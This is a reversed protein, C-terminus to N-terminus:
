KLIKINRIILETDIEPHRDSWANNIILYFPEKVSFEPDNSRMRTKLKGDLYFDYGKEKVEMSYEHFKGDPKHIKRVISHAKYGPTKVFGYHVCNDIKGGNNEAIDVEPIIFDRNYESVFYDPHLLWIAAWSDPFNANFIWTGGIQSFLTTDKNWTTLCGSVWKGDQKQSKIVLGWLPDVSVMDKQFAVLGNNYTGNDAVNFKDLDSQNKFGCEFTTEGKFEKPTFRYISCSSLILLLIYLLKKM